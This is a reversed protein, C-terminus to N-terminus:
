KGKKENGRKKKDKDDNIFLGYFIINIIEALLASPSYDNKILWDPTMFEQSLSVFIELFLDPDLDPRIEKRRLGEAVIESFLPFIKKRRFSEMEAWVEPLRTKLDQLFNRSIESLFRSLFTLFSSLKEKVSSTEATVVDNLHCFTQEEVREIVKRLLSEKDPFYRYLTAKSIALDEAIEDMSLRSYGYKFFLIRSRELIRDLLLNEKKSVKLVSKTKM